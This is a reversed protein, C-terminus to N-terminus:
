LQFLRRLSQIRPAEQLAEVLRQFRDLGHNIQSHLNRADTPLNYNSVDVQAERAARLVWDELKPRLVIVLNDRAAHRLLRLGQAPLDQDQVIQLGGLYSPQDAGPDEDLMGRASNRKRLQAAVGYKGKLEHIVQRAPLGTVARVLIEDPKCEVYIM